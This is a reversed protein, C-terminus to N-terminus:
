DVAAQVCRCDRDDHGDPAAIYVLKDVERGVPFDTKIQGTSRLLEAVILEHPGKGPSGRENDVVGGHAAFAAEQGSILGGDMEIGEAHIGMKELGHRDAYAMLDALTEAHSLPGGEKKRWAGDRGIVAM